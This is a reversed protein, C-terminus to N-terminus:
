EESKYTILRGHSTYKRGKLMNDVYIDESAVIGFTKSDERVEITSRQDYRRAPETRLVRNVYIIVVCTIIISLAIVEIIIIKKNM